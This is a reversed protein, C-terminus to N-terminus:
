REYFSSVRLAFSYNFSIDALVKHIGIILDRFLLSSYSLIFIKWCANTHRLM